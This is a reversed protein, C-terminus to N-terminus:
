GHTVIYTNCIYAMPGGNNVSTCKPVPTIVATHWTFLVVSLGISMNVIHCVKALKRCCYLLGLVLEDTGPSTRLTRSLM